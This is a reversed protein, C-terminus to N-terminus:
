TQKNPEAPQDTKPWIQMRVQLLTKAANKLPGFYTAM